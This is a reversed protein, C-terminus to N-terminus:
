KLNAVNSQETIWYVASNSVSKKNCEGGFRCFLCVALIVKLLTGMHLTHTTHLFNMFNSQSWNTEFAFPKACSAVLRIEWEKLWVQLFAVCFGPLSLVCNWSTKLPFSQYLCVELYWILKNLFISNQVLVKLDMLNAHLKLIRFNQRNTNNVHLFHFLYWIYKDKLINKYQDIPFNSCFRNRFFM